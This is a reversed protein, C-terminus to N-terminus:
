TADTGRTLNFIEEISEEKEYIIGKMDYSLAITVNIYDDDILVVEYPAISVGYKKKLDRVVAEIHQQKGGTPIGSIRDWTKDDGKIVVDNHGRAIKNRLVQRILDTQPSHTVVCLYIGDAKRELVAKMLEVLSSRVHKSLDKASEMWAGGTHLDIITADFDLAVLRVGISVLHDVYRAM